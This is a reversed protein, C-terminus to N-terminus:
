EKEDSLYKNILTEGSNPDIYMRTGLTQTALYKTKYLEILSTKSVFTLYGKYASNLKLSERCGFAILCGAVNEFQKSSGINFPALEILEMILMGDDEILQILGHIRESVSEKLCYISKSSSKYAKLWNFTWGDNKKPVLSRRLRIIECEIRLKDKKSQIIM